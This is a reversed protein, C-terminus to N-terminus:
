TMELSFISRVPYAVANESSSPMTSSILPKAIIRFVRYAFTQPVVRRRRAVPYLTTVPIPCVLPPNVFREAAGSTETTNEKRLSCSFM